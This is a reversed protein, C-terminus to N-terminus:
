VQYFNGIKTDFVEMIFALLVLIDKSRTQNSEEVSKQLTKLM